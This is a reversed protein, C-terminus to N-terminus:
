ISFFVNTKAAYTLPEHSSFFLWSFLAFWFACTFYGRIVIARVIIVEILMKWIMKKINNISLFYHNHPMFQDSFDPCYVKALYSSNMAKNLLFKTALSDTFRFPVSNNWIWKRNTNRDIYAKDVPFLSHSDLTISSM